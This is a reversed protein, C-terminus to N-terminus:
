REHEQEYGEAGQARLHEDFDDAQAGRSRCMGCTNGLLMERDTLPNGCDGCMGFGEERANKAWLIEDRVVRELAEREQGSM